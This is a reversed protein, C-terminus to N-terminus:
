YGALNFLYHWSISSLYMPNRTISNFFKPNGSCIKLYKLLFKWSKSKLFWPGCRNRMLCNNQSHHTVSSIPALTWNDSALLLLLRLNCNWDCFVRFFPPLRGALLKVISKKMQPAVYRNFCWDYMYLVSPHSPDATTVWWGCLLQWILFWCVKINLILVHFHYWFAYLIHESL